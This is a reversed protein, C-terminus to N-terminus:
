FEVRILALVLNIANSEFRLPRFLNYYGQTHPFMFRTGHAPSCTHSRKLIRPFFLSTALPLNQSLEMRTQCVFLWGLILVNGDWKM